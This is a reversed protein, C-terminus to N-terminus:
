KSSFEYARNDDGPLPLLAKVCSHLNSSEEVSVKVQKRESDYEKNLKTSM